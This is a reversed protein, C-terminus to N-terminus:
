HLDLSHSMCVSHAMALTYPYPTAAAYKTRGLIRSEIPVQLSTGIPIWGRITPPGQHDHSDQLFSPMQGLLFRKDAYSSMCSHECCGQKYYGFCPFIGFTWWTIFPDDFHTRNMYCFMIQGYFFCHFESM